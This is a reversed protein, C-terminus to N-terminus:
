TTTAAKTATASDPASALTSPEAADKSPVKMNEGHLKLLLLTKNFKMLSGYLKGFIVNADYFKKFDNGNKNTFYINNYKYYVFNMRKIKEPDNLTEPNDVLQMGGKFNDINFYAKNNLLAIKSVHRLNKTSSTDENFKNYVIGIQNKNQVIKTIINAEM